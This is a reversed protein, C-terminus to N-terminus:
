LSGEAVDGVGPPLNSTGLEPEVAVRGRERM